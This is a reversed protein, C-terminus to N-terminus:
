RKNDSKNAHLRLWHKRGVPEVHTIEYPTGEFLIHMTEDIGPYYRITFVVEGTAVVQSAYYGERGGKYNVNAPLGILPTFSEVLENYSNRTQVRQRIYIYHDLNM